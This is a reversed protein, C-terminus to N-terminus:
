EHETYAEIQERSCGTSAPFILDWHVGEQGAGVGVACEGGYEAPIVAPDILESLQPLFDSSLILFKDRTKADMLYYFLNFIARVYWASEIVVLKFLREPYFDQDIRLINKVYFISDMDLSASLGAMDFVIVCQHVPHGFTKSAYAYRMDFIEQSM